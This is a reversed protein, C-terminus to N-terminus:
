KKRSQNTQRGEKREEDREMKRFEIVTYTIGILILAFVILGPFMLNLTM